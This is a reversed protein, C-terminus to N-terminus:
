EKWWERWLLTCNGMARTRVMAEPDHLPANNILSCQAPFCVCTCVMGGGCRMFGTDPTIVDGPAVFVFHQSRAQGAVVEM